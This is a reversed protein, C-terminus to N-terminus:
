LYLHNDRVPVSPQVICNVITWENYLGKIILKRCLDTHMQDIFVDYEHFKVHAFIVIYLKRLLIQQYLMVYAGM